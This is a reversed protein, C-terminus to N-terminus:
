VVSKRDPEPPGTRTIASTGRARQFGRSVRAWRAAHLLRHAGASRRIGYGREGKALNMMAPRIMLRTASSHTAHAVMRGGSRAVVAGACVVGCTFAVSGNVDVYTGSGVRGVSIRLAVIRVAVPGRMSFPEIRSRSPLITSTAGLMAAPSAVTISARPRQTVGPMM